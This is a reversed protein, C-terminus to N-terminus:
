ALRRHYFWWELMLVGLGALVVWMWIERNVTAVSTAGQVNGGENTELTRPTIDSQEPSLLNVAFEAKKDRSTVDYFGVHETQAFEAAGDHTAIERADGSPLHM